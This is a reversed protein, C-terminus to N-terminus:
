IEKVISYIYLGEDDEDLLSIDYGLEKLLKEIKTDNVKVVIDWISETTFLYEICNELLTFVEKISHKEKNVIQISAKKLDKELQVKCNELIVDNHILFFDFNKQYFKEDKSDISYTDMANKKCFDQYMALHKPNNFNAKIIQM